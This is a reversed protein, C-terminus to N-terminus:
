KKKENRVEKLITYISFISLHFMAALERLTYDPNKQAFERIEKDRVAKAHGTKYKM